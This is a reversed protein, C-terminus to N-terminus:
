LMRRRRRFSFTDVESKAPKPEARRVNARGTVWDENEQLFVSFQRLARGRHSILNKEEQSMEAFTRTNFKLLTSGPGQESDPASPHDFPLFCPSFAEEVEALKARFEARCVAGDQNLDIEEFLKGAGSASMGVELAAAVVEARSLSGDRDADIAEFLVQERWERESKTLARPSEGGVGPNGAGDDDKHAPITFDPVFIADWGFGGLQEDTSRYERVIKGKTRGAFVCPEAGPGPSFAVSCQAWARRSNPGEFGHLMRVLGANGCTDM